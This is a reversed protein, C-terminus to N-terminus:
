DDITLMIWAVKGEQMGFRASTWSNPLGKLVGSYLLVEQAIPSTHAMKPAYESFFRLDLEHDPKKMSTPAGYRSLVDEKSAGLGIGEATKWSRFDFGAKAFTKAPCNPVGSILLEGASEPQEHIASIRLYANEDYSYCFPSKHSTPEGLQRLVAKISVPRVVDFTGLRTPGKYIPDGSGVTLLALMAVFRLTRMIM